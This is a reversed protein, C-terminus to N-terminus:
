AIATTNVFTLVNRTSTYRLAGTKPIKAFSSSLLEYNMLLKSKFLWKTYLGCMNTGVRCRFDLVPRALLHPFAGCHGWETSTSKKLRCKCPRAM